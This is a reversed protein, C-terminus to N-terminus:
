CFPYFSLFRVEFVKVGYKKTMANLMGEVATVIDNMQTKPWTKFYDLANKEFTNRKRSM